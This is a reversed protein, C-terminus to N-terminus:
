VLIYKLIKVKVLDGALKDTKVKAAESKAAPKHDTTVAKAARQAEQKARREARLEAKSKGEEAKRVGIEKKDTVEDVKAISSGEKGKNSEKSKDECSQQLFLKLIILFDHKFNHCHYSILCM